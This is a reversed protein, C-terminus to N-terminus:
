PQGQSDPKRSSRFVQLLVLLLTVTFGVTGADDQSENWWRNWIEDDTLKLYTKNGSHIEIVVPSTDKITPYSIRVVAVERGKLESKLGCDNRGSGFFPLYSFGKCRVDQGGVSSESYRGSGGCDYKGTLPPLREFKTGLPPAAIWVVMLAIGYCLFGGILSRLLQTWNFESTDIFKLPTMQNSNRNIQESFDNM